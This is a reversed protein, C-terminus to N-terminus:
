LGNIRCSWSWTAVWKTSHKDPQNVSGQYSASCYENTKTVGSNVYSGTPCSATPASPKSGYCETGALNIWTSGYTTASYTQQRKNGWNTYLNFEPSTETM